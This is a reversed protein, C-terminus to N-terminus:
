RLPKLFLLTQVVPRHPDRPDEHPQAARCCGAAAVRQAVQRPQARHRRLRTRRPVAAQDGGHGGLGPLRLLLWLPGRKQIEAQGEAVGGRQETQFGLGRQGRSGGASRPRRRASRVPQKM